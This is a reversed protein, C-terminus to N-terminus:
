AFTFAHSWLHSGDAGLVLQATVKLLAGDFQVSGELMADVALRYRDAACRPQRKKYRLKIHTRDRM